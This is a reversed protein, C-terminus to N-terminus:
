FNKKWLTLPVLKDIDLNGITKGMIQNLMEYEESGIIEGIVKQYWEKGKPTQIVFKYASQLGIKPLFWYKKNGNLSAARRLIYKTHDRKIKLNPPICAALKVLEKDWYPSVPITGIALQLDAPNYFFMEPCMSISQFTFYDLIQRGAKIGTFKDWYSKIGIEFVMRELDVNYHNPLKREPFPPIGNQWNKFLIYLKILERSKGLKLLNTFLSILGTYKLFKYLKITKLYLSQRNMGFFLRDAGDGDWVEDFGDAKIRKALLWMAAENFNVPQSSIRNAEEMHEILEEENAKIKVVELSSLKSFGDVRDFEDYCDGYALNYGITKINNELLKKAIYGSDVGGSLCVAATKQTPNRKSIAKAMLDDIKRAYGYESDTKEGSVDFLDLVDYYKEKIIKNQKCKLITGAPIKKINEFLTAESQTFGFHYYHFLANKSLPPMHRNLLLEIGQIGTSFFLWEGTEYYLFMRTGFPDTFLQLEYHDKGTKFYRVGIFNGEIEKINPHALIKLNEETGAADSPLYVPYFVSGVMFLIEYRDSLHYIYKSSNIQYIILSKKQNSFIISEQYESLVPCSNGDKSYIGLILPVNNLHKM